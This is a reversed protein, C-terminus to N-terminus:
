GAFPLGLSSTQRRLFCRLALSQCRRLVCLSLPDGPRLCGLM